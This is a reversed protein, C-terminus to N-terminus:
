GLKAAAGYLGRPANALADLLAAPDTSHKLLDRHQERVFGVNASHDLFGLLQDYYGDVNLLGVPKDQYGLQTWTMMEFLEEFTGMGGPLAVFADGLSAMMAKRTHMDSVVFLETCGQHAVELDRLLEPIVGYVRGGAELAATAMAGMLGVRGGGFVLDIGRRALLRGFDAAAERHIAPTDDSSGCYVTVRKLTRMAVVLLM